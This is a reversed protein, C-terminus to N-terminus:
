LRLYASHCPDLVVIVDDCVFPRKGGENTPNMPDIAVPPISNPWYPPAREPKLHASIDSIADSLSSDSDMAPLNEIQRITPLPWASEHGGVRLFDVIRQACTASDLEYHELQGVFRQTHWVCFILKRLRDIPELSRPLCLDLHEVSSYVVLRIIPAERGVNILHARLNIVQVDKADFTEDFGIVLDADGSVLLAGAEGSPIISVEVQGQVLDPNFRALTDPRRYPVRRGRLYTEIIELLHGPKSVIAIHMSTERTLSLLHGLFKFKESSHEAYLAEEKAIVQDQSGPGGGELGIHTAINALRELLTNLKEVVDGSITEETMNKSISQPYYEITEIYQSLIRPQMPLTVIFEGKRLNRPKLTTTPSPTPERHLFLKSPTTPTHSASQPNRGQLPIDRLIESPQAELRSPEEQVEYPAKAPIILPSSAVHHPLTNPPSQVRVRFEDHKPSQSVASSSPGSIPRQEQNSASSAAVAHMQHDEKPLFSPKESAAVATGDRNNRTFSPSGSLQRMSMRAAERKAEGEARIKALRERIGLPRPSASPGSGNPSLDAMEDKSSSPPVPPEQSDLTDPLQQSTTPTSSVVAGAKTKTPDELYTNDENSNDPDNQRAPQWNPDRISLISDDTTTAQSPHSNETLDESLVFTGSVINRRRAPEKAAGPTQISISSQQNSEVLLSGAGESSIQSPTELIESVLQGGSLNVEVEYTLSM